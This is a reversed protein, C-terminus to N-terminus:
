ILTNGQAALGAIGPLTQNGRQINFVYNIQPAIDKDKQAATGTVSYSFTVVDSRQLTMFIVRPTGQDVSCVVQWSFWEGVPWYYPLNLSTGPLIEHVGSGAMPTVEILGDGVTGQWLIDPNEKNPYSTATLNSVIIIGNSNPAIM